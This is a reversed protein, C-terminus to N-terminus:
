TSNHGGIDTKNKCVKREFEKIAGKANKIKYPYVDVTCVSVDKLTRKKEPKVWGIREIRVNKYTYSILYVM